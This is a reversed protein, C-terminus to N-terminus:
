FEAKKACKPLKSCSARVEVLTSIFGHLVFLALLNDDNLLVLLVLFLWKVSVVVMGYMPM